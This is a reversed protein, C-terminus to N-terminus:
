NYHQAIYPLLTEGGCDINSSGDLPDFVAVYRSDLAAETHVAQEEEESALVGLKGTFRLANKLVDNSLVDLQSPPPSRASSTNNTIASSLGVALLSTILQFNKELVSISSM